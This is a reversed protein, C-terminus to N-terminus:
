HDIGKFHSQRPGAISQEAPDNECGEGAEAAGRPSVDNSNSAGDKTIWSGVPGGARLGDLKTPGPSFWFPLEPLTSGAGPWCLSWKNITVSALM